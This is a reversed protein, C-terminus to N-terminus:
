LEFRIGTRAEAFEWVRRAVDPDSSAQSPEQMVPEGRMLWHPGWYSGGVADQRTAAALVSHAGRQKSQTFSAQLSDVFVTGRTPENVGPIRPTRGSISYGPHAVTSSASLEAARMRRDLEFGFSELATKSQAYARWPTYELELQLDGVLFRNLRTALSGLSVVRAGPTRVIVPLLAAILAFHGLMNTALVLEDGGATLRRQEPPHVMGANAVVLDLRERRALASAAVAVSDADATDLHVVELSAAVGEAACRARIARVAADARGADRCALIVHAGARALAASTFFGIGKNAGTVLATRGTQDTVDAGSM